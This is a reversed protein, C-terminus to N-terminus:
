LRAALRVGEEIARKADLKEALRCGGVLQPTLGATALGEALGREPEQGACVVINDVVLLRPEGGVRVHLGADDIREYEVGRLMKVGRRTLTLRHIWGTTKGLERGIPTPKRQLLWIERSMEAALDPQPVTGGRSGLTM